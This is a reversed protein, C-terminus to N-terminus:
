LITLGLRKLMSVIEQKSSVCSMESVQFLLSCNKSHAERWSPDTRRPDIVSTKTKIRVRKGRGGRLYVSVPENLDILFTKALCIQDYCVLTM